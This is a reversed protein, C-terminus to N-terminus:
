YGRENNWYKYINQCSLHFAKLSREYASTGHTKLWWRKVNQKGTWYEGFKNAKMSHYNCDVSVVNMLYRYSAQREPSGGLLHVNWGSFLHPSLSTAGYGSPVSYGLRIPTGAIQRPLKNIVGTCKPIIVITETYSAIEESWSIVEDLQNRRELDLVTAIKPRHRKVTEVYEGRDPNKWDQDSFFLPVPLTKRQPLRLGYHFGNAIAIAMLNDNGNSCYILDVHAAM